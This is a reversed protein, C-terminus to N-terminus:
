PILGLMLCVPQWTEDPQELSWTSNNFGRMELIWKLPPTLMVWLHSVPPTVGPVTRLHWTEHCPPSKIHGILTLTM